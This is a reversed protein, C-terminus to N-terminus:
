RPALVGRGIEQDQPLLWSLLFSHEHCCCCRAATELSSPLSKHDCQCLLQAFFAPSHSISETWNVAVLILHYVSELRSVKEAKVARLSGQSVFEEIGNICCSFAFDRHCVELFHKCGEDLWSVVSRLGTLALFAKVPIRCLIHMAVRFPSLCVPAECQITM